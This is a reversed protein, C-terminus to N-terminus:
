WRSRKSPHQVTRHVGQNIITRGRAGHSSPAFDAHLSPRSSTHVVAVRSVLPRARGQRPVTARASMGAVPVSRAGVQLSVSSGSRLLIKSLSGAPGNELSSRRERSRRASPSRSGQCVSSGLRPPAARSVPLLTPSCTVRAASHPQGHFSCCLHFSGSPRKLQRRAAPM